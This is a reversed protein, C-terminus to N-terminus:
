LKPITTLPNLTDNEAIKVKSKNSLRIQGSTVVKDGVKVGGSILVQGNNMEIVKISKQKVRQIAKGEENVTEIVYVSDGYLTYTVASRPIVIQQTLEPLLIDAEAFMGSRLKNDINPIDAQVQILGSLDFVSPEIASIEGVFPTNPYADVYAKIKQGKSIQALQNQPITFRIKMNSLNEIRVVDSGAQIYQGLNVERIGVIGDFPARIERRAITAKLRVISAKLALYTSQSDDLSQKSASKSKYLTKMREYEAKTAPLQVVSNKLDAKEVDTNLAMLLQNKKVQTGNKFNISSIVGSVQNSLMGGLNPEVYGIAHLNSQWKKPTITIATVPFEAEPMNAIFGEIKKNVFLNFGIVSGFVLVGIILMATFWKKM